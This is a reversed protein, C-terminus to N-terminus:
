TDADQTDLLLRAEEARRLVLGPLKRGGGWVWRQIEEAAANWEQANVRRRLTSAAYRTPGLNYIFDSIASLRNSGAVILVPSLRLAHSIYSPLIRELEAAAEPEAIEGADRSCLVGYGRTWYGAPCRYPVATPTPSWRVVRAFGERRKVLEILQDPARM